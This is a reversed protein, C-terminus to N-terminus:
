WHVAESGLWAGSCDSMESRRGGVGVHETPVGAEGARWDQADELGGRGRGEVWLWPSGPFVCPTTCREWRGWPEPHFGIHEPRGRGQGTEPWWGGGM